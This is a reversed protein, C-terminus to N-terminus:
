SFEDEESLGVGFCEDRMMSLRALAGLYDELMVSYNEVDIVVELM